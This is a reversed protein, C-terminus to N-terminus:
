VRFAKRVLDQFLLPSFGLEECIWLFSWVDRSNSSIWRIADKRDRVAKDCWPSIQLDYCARELIACLLKREPVNALPNGKVVLRNVSNTSEKLLKTPM